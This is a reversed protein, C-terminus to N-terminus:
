NNDTESESELWRKRVGYAFGYSVGLTDAVQSVTRGQQYLRRMEESKNPGPSDETANVGFRALGEPVGGSM